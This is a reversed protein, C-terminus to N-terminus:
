KKQSTCICATLICLCTTGFVSSIVHPVSIFLHLRLFAFPRSILAVPCLCLDLADQALLLWRLRLRQGPCAACSACLNVLSDRNLLMMCRIIFSTGLLSLVRSPYIICLAMSLWAGACSRM